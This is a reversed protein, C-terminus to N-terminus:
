WNKPIGLSQLMWASGQIQEPRKALTSKADEQFSFRSFVKNKMSGLLLYKHSGAPERSDANGCIHLGPTLHDPNLGRLLLRLRLQTRYVSGLERGQHMNPSPLAAAAQLWTLSGVHIAKPSKHLLLALPPFIAMSSKLIPM